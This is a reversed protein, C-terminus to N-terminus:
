IFDPKIEKIAISAINTKPLTKLPVPSGPIKTTEIITPVITETIAIGSNM